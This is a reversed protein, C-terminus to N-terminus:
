SFYLSVTFFHRVVAIFKFLSYSPYVLSPSFQLGVILYNNTTTSTGRLIKVDKSQVPHITNGLYVTSQM